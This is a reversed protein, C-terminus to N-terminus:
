VNAILRYHRRSIEDGTTGLSPAIGNCWHDWWHAAGGTEQTMQVYEAIRRKRTEPKVVCVGNKRKFERFPRGQWELDILNRADFCAVNHGLMQAVFASKVIGFGPVESALLDIVGSTTAMRCGAWLEASHERCYDYGEQKWGWLYVSDRGARRVDRLATPLSRFPQRISLLVFTLLDRFNDANEEAYAKIEPVDRAYM